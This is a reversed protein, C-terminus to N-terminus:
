FEESKNLEHPLLELIPVKESRLSGEGVESLRDGGQVVM